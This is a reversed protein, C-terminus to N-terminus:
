SVAYVARDYSSTILNTDTGLPICVWRGLHYVDHVGAHALNSIWSERVAKDAEVLLMHTDHPLSSTM